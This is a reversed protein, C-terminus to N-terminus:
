YTIKHESFYQHAIEGNTWNFNQLCDQTVVILGAEPFSSHDIYIGITPDSDHTTITDIIKIDGEKKSEKNGM